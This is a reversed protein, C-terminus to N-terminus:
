TGHRLACSVAAAFQVSESEATAVAGDARALALAPRVDGDPTAITADLRQEGGPREQATRAPDAKEEAARAAVITEAADVAAEEHPAMPEARPKGTEEPTTKLRIRPKPAPEIARPVDPLLVDDPAAISREALQAEIERIQAAEEHYGNRELVTALANQPDRLFAAGEIGTVDVPKDSLLAETARALANVHKAQSPLDVPAGLSSVMRNRIEKQVLASDIETKTHKAGAYGFAGGLIVDAILTTADMHRYQAAMDEYGNAELLTATAYRSALDQAVNIGPGVALTNAVRGAGFSAPLLAGLSAFAADSLAAAQATNADVGQSQLDFSSGEFTTGGAVAAGLFPNVFTAAIAPTQGAISYLVNSVSGHTVPDLQSDAMWDRVRDRSPKLVDTGRAKDYVDVLNGFPMYPRLDFSLSTFSAGARSLGQGLGSPIGELVGPELAGFDTPTAALTQLRERAPTENVFLGSL